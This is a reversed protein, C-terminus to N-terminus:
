PLPDRARACAEFSPRGRDVPNDNNEPLLARVAERLGHLRGVEALLVKVDHGFSEGAPMYSDPMDDGDQWRKLRWLATRVEDWPQRGNLLGPDDPASSADNM